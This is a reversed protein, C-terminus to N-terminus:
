KGGVEIGDDVHAQDRHCDPSKFRQNIYIIVAYLVLYRTRCDLFDVHLSYSSSCSACHFSCSLSLSSDIAIVYGSPDLKALM